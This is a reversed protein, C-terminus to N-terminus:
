FIINYNYYILFNLHSQVNLLDQKQKALDKLMISMGQTIIEVCPQCWSGVAKSNDEKPLFTFGAGGRSIFGYVKDTIVKRCRECKMEPPAPWSKKIMKSYYM